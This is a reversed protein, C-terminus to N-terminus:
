PAQDKWKLGVIDGQANTRTLDNATPSPSPILRRILKKCSGCSTGARTMIGVGMVTTYGERIAEVVATESVAHCICVRRGRPPCQRM